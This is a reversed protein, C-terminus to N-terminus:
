NERGLRYLRFGAIMAWVMTLLSVLIILSGLFKVFFSGVVAVTGLAGTGIGLYAAAKGFSGRLMVFGALLIGIALTLSNYVFLLGSELIIAPATAIAVVATKEAASAANAYKGSLMILAAYNTWTIELDLVVFLAICSVALLMLSRSVDKLATYLALALPVFLLDTLVSLWLIWWWAATHGALHSLREEVGKPPAGTIVYVAIIAIYGIGLAIGSVGGARFLWKSDPDSDNRM